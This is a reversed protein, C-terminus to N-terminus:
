IWCINRLGKVAEIMCVLPRKGVAILKERPEGGEVVRFVLSEAVVDVGPGVLTHPSDSGPPLLLLLLMSNPSIVIVCHGIDGPDIEEM